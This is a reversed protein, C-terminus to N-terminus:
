STFRGWHRRLITEKPRCHTGELVRRLLLTGQRSSPALCDWTRHTSPVYAVLAEVGVSNHCSFVTLRHAPSHAPSTGSVRLASVLTRLKARWRHLWSVSTSRSLVGVRSCSSSLVKQSLTTEHTQCPDETVAVKQACADRTIGGSVM